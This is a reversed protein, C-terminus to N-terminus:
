PAAVLEVLITRHGLTDVESRMQGGLRQALSKCAALALGFRPVANPEFIDDGQVPTLRSHRISLLAAAPGAQTLVVPVGANRTEVVCNLLLVLLTKLLAESGLVRTAAPDCRLDLADSWSRDSVIRRLLESLDVATRQADPRPWRQWQQVLHALDKGQRRLTDLDDRLPPPLTTDLLAIQLLLNNLFNNAEHMLPRALAGLTADNEWDAGMPETIM